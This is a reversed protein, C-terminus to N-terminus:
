LGIADEITYRGPGRSALWRSARLAGRAFTDRSTAAHTIALREGGGAFHVTHEGVVDGMRLSHVGVSAPERVGMGVRGHEIVERSRGLGELVADTLTIATGSPADKKQNHHSEVIEVDFDDGLVAAAQRALRNLLAVGLSTNTNHLVAISAAAEDLAAFHEAELGTTGSLFPTKREVAIALWQTFGDPSSFDIYVDCDPIASDGRGIAAALELDDASAILSQLRQGVRGNAGVVAIKLSM